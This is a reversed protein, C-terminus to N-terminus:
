LIVFAGVFSYPLIYNNMHVFLSMYISTVGLSVTTIFLVLYYTKNRYGQITFYGSKIGEIGLLFFCISIPLVDSSSSFLNFLGYFLALCGTLVYHYGREM